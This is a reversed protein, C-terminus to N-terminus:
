FLKRVGNAVSYFHSLLLLEAYPAWDSFKSPLM